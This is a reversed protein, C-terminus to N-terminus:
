FLERSEKVPLKCSSFLRNGNFTLNYFEAASFDCNTFKFPRRFWRKEDILVNNYLKGSFRCADFIAGMFVMRGNFTCNEFICDKYTSRNGLTSYQGDIKCNIFKCNLYKTSSGLSSHRFHVNLFECSRISSASVTLEEFIVDKLRENQLSKKIRFDKLLEKPM